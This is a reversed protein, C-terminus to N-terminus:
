LEVIVQSNFSVVLVKDGPLLQNLFEIAASQIDYITDRASGSTDMVIAVHIPVRESSFFSIEQEVGDELVRFDEKRLQPVYHGSRDSVVAPVEILDGELSLTDEQESGPAGPQAPVRGDTPPPVTQSPDVRRPRGQGSTAAPLGAMLVLVLVLLVGLRQM